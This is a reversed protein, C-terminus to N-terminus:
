QVVAALVQHVGNGESFKFVTGLNLISTESVANRVSVRTGQGRVTVKLGVLAITMMMM